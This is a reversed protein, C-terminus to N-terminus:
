SLKCYNKTVRFEGFFIQYPQIFLTLRRRFVRGYPLTTYFVATIWLALQTRTLVSTLIQFAMEADILVVRFIVGSLYFWIASSYTMCYYDMM